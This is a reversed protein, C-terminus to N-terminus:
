KVCSSSFNMLFAQKFLQCSVASGYMQVWWPLPLVANFVLNEDFITYAHGSWPMLKYWSHECGVHQESSKEEIIGIRSGILM